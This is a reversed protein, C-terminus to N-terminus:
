GRGGYALRAEKLTAMAKRLDSRRIRLNDLRARRGRSRLPQFLLAEIEAASLRLLGTGAPTERWLPAVTSLAIGVLELDQASPVARQAGTIHGYAISAALGLPIFEAERAPRAFSPAGASDRTVAM